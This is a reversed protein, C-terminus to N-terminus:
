CWQFHLRPSLHSLRLTLMQCRSLPGVRLFGSGFDGGERRTDTVKSVCMGTVKGERGGERRGRM